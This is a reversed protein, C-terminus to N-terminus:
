TRHCQTLDLVELLQRLVRVQHLVAAVVVVGVGEPDGHLEAVESVEAVVVLSMVGLDWEGMLYM